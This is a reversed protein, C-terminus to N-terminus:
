QGISGNHHERQGQFFRHNVMSQALLYLLIFLVATLVFKWIAVRPPRQEPQPELNSRTEMRDGKEAAQAKVAPGLFGVAIRCQKRRRNRSELAISRRGGSEVKSFIWPQCTARPFPPLLVVNTRIM